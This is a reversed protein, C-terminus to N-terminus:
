EFSVMIKILWVSTKKGQLTYGSIELNEKM